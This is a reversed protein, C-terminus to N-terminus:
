KIKKKKRQRILKSLYGENKKLPAQTPTSKTSPHKTNLKQKKLQYISAIWTANGKELVSNKLFVRIM